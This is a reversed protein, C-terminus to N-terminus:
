GGHGTGLQLLFAPMEAASPRWHTPGAGDAESWTFAGGVAEWIRVTSQALENTGAANWWMEAAATDLDSVEIVRADRPASGIPLWPGAFPPEGRWIMGATDIASTM